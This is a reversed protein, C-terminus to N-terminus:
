LEMVELHVVRVVVVFEISTFEDFRENMPMVTGVVVVVGPLRDGFGLDELVVLELVHDVGDQVAVVPVLIPEYIVALEHGCLM